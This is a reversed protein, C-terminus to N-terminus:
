WPGLRGPCSSFSLLSFLRNLCLRRCCHCRCHHYRHHFAVSFCFSFPSSFSSSLQPRPCVLYMNQLHQFELFFMSFINKIKKNLIHKWNNKQPVASEIEENWLSYLSKTAFRLYWGNSRLGNVTSCGGLDRPTSAVMSTPGFFPYQDNKFFASIEIKESLCKRQKYSKEYNEEKNM